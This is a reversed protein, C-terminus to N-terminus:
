DGVTPGAFPDKISEAGEGSQRPRVRQLDFARVEDQSEFDAFGLCSRPHIEFWGSTRSAFVRTAGLRGLWRASNGCAENFVITPTAPAICVLRSVMDLPSDDNQPPPNLLDRHRGAHPTGRAIPAAEKTAAPAQVKHSTRPASQSGLTLLPRVRQRM